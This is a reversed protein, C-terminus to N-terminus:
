DGGLAEGVAEEMLGISNSKTLNVDAVEAVRSDWRFHYVPKCISVQM